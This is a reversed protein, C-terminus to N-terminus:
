HTKKTNRIDEVEKSVYSTKKANDKDMGQKLRTIILLYPVAEIQRIAFFKYLIKCFFIKQTDKGSSLLIYLFLYLFFM